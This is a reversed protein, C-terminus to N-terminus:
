KKNLLRSYKADHEKKAKEVSQPNLVQKLQSSYTNFRSFAPDGNIYKKHDIDGSVAADKAEQQKILNFTKIDKEKYAKILKDDVQDMHIFAEHGIALSYAEKGNPEDIYATNLQIDFNLKGKEERMSYTGPAVNYEDFEAFNLNQEAYKGDAKFEVSGIKQGAKAYQSLFAYGEKTKAFAELQKQSDKNMHGQVWKGGGDGDSVWHYIFIEEGTPDIFLLPNNAFAINPSLSYFKEAKPDVSHWRGLVADYFRAGYDLLGLGMEDQSMKSNILKKSSNLAKLFITLIEKM